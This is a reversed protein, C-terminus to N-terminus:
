IRAAARRMRGVFDNITKEPIMEESVMEVRM